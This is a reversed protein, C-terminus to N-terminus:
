ESIPTTGNAARREVAGDNPAASTLEITMEAQMGPKLVWQGNRERNAVEAVVRYEGNAEIIPNVFVVKGSFSETRGRSLKIEVTAPRDAVQEADFQGVNLYGEVRLRDIRLIRLVPDGLEVWEGRNRLVEIVMGDVPAVVKRRELIAAARAAQASKAAAAHASLRHELDAQEVRFDDRKRNLDRRRVEALTITEAFRVNADLAQQYEAETVDASARAYRVDIDSGAKEEAALCDAEAVQLELQVLADDLRALVAGESVLMGERAEVEILSGPERAPVLVDDIVTVYCRSLLAAAPPDDSSKAALALCAIAGLATGLVSSRTLM